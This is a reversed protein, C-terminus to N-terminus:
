YASCSKRTHGNHSVLRSKSAKTITKGRTHRVATKQAVVRFASHPRKASGARQKKIAHNKYSCRKLTKEFSSLSYAKQCRTKYLECQRELQKKVHVCLLLKGNKNGQKCALTRLSTKRQQHRQTKCVRSTNNVSHLYSDPISRAM